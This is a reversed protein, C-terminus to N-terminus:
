RGSQLIPPSLAIQLDAGTARILRARAVSYDRLADLYSGRAETLARQADLVDIQAGAGAKYREQALGLSREGKRVNKTQAELVSRATRLDSWAQRM